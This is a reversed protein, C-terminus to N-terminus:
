LDVVRATITGSSIIVAFLSQDDSKAGLFSPISRKLTLFKMSKPEGVRQTIIM